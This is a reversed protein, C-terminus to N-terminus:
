CGANKVGFFFLSLSSSSPPPQTSIFISSVNVSSNTATIYIWQATFHTTMQDREGAKTKVNEEGRKKKLFLLFIDLKLKNLYKRQM